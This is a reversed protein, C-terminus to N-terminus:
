INPFFWYNCTTNRYRLIVQMFILTVNLKGGVLVKVINFSEKDKYIRHIQDFSELTFDINLIYFHYNTITELCKMDIKAKRVWSVILYIVMALAIGSVM